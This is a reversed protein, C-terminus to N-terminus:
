FKYKEMLPVAVGNILGALTGWVMRRHPALHREYVVSYEVNPRGGRSRKFNAAGSSQNLLLDQAQAAQYTLASLMRYLGTEQPLTLDYGFLPTTMAGNRSFYGIAGDIRGDKRLAQLTLTREALALELYKLTFQPNHLSYKDLYLQNYLDLLRPMDGVTLGDHDVVEYGSQALLKLDKKWIKRDNANYFEQRAPYQYYLQRSPVPTYGRDVFASLVADGEVTNISRFIVAHHPFRAVLLTTIRDIQPATLPPYLNTSLLWNNVIVAKNVEGFRLFGGLGGIAGGLVTELLPEKLTKLEEHAYTVYHNYPACVYCNDYEADNVSVPLLLDDVRLAQMHTAVNAIYPRTGERMLPTLYRRAYAGDPTDPWDIPDSADYLHLATM